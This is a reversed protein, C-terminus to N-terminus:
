EFRMQWEKFGGEESGHTERLLQQYEKDLANMLRFVAKNEMGSIMISLEMVLSPEGDEMVGFGQKFNFRKM